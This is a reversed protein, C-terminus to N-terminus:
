SSGLSINTPILDAQTPPATVTFALSHQLDNSTNGGIRHIHWFLGATALVAGAIILALPGNQLKMSTNEEIALIESFTLWALGVSALLYSLPRPMKPWFDPALIALFGLGISIDEAVTM